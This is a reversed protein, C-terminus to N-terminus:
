DDLGKGKLIRPLCKEVREERTKALKAGSFHYLYARQRGPTLAEFAARLAADRDLAWRFEAAVEVEATEKPEVKLGAKEIDMAERVYAKVTKERAAVEEVATFRFQRPTRMKGITHLVGEPDRMLAGKPFMLACYGKFGHFVVINRPGDMYCPWGWKLGESLGLGLLLTRLKAFEKQWQPVRRACAAAVKPDPHTTPAM